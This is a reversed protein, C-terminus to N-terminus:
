PNSSVGASLTGDKRFLHSREVTNAKSTQLRAGGLRDQVGFVMRDLAMGALLGAWTGMIGLCIFLPQGTVACLAIGLSGGLLSGCLMGLIRRKNSQDSM